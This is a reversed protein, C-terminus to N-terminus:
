CMDGRLFRLLRQFQHQRLLSFLTQIATFLAASAETRPWVSYVYPVLQVIVSVHLNMIAVTLLVTLM